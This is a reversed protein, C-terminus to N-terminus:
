EKGSETMPLIEEVTQSPLVGCIEGTVLQRDGAHAIPIVSISERLTASDMPGAQTGAAGATSARPSLLVCPEGGARLADIEQVVAAVDAGKPTLPTGRGQASVPEGPSRVWIAAEEFGASWAADIIWELSAAPARADAAILLSPVMSVDDPGSRWPHCAQAALEQNVSVIPGLRAALVARHREEIRGESLVDASQGAITLESLTLEVLAPVVPIKTTRGFRCNRMASNNLVATPDVAFFRASSVSAATAGTPFIMPGATTPTSSSCGGALAAILLLATAHTEHMSITRSTSM